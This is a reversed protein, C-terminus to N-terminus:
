TNSLGMYTGREYGRSLMDDMAASLEEGGKSLAARVRKRDSQSRKTRYINALYRDKTNTVKRWREKNM